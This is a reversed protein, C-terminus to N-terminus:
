QTDASLEARADHERADQEYSEALLRLMRSTRPWKAATRKSWDRYRAALEREQTGGDYVGRSTIGRTNVIGTHLGTEIRTSGIMEILERVPKAPWIGDSGEPSASLVRGVQEDGIDGRDSDAFALRASRVWETLHSADITGDDLLGPLEHWGELVWWAHKALEQDHPDLQRRPENRGRYVRKVLDVFVNPEARMAPFLARPRRYDDLLRFFAFEYGALKEALCGLGELRDLLVGVEYGPSQSATENSDARLAADLVAEILEVGIAEQEAEAGQLTAALL